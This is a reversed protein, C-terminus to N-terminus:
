PQRLREDTFRLSRAQWAKMAVYFACPVILSNTIIVRPDGILLGYVSWLVSAVVILGYMPVSIGSLDTARAAHFTQPLISTVGVVIAVWGAFTVSVSLAAATIGCIGAAAGLLRRAGLTRHRLQAVAIMLLATGITGNSVILPVVGRATGYSTWLTCAALGHLTGNPALGEVTNLRYVRAVQPWVFSVSLATCIFGLVATLHM